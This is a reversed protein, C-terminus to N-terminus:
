QVKKDHANKARLAENASEIANMSTFYDFASLHALEEDPVKRRWVSWRTRYRHMVCGLTYLLTFVTAIRIWQLRCMAYNVSTNVFIGVDNNYHVYGSMVYEVRYFWGSRELVLGKVVIGHKKNM